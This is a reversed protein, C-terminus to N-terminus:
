PNKEATSDAEETQETKKVVKINRINRKAEEITVMTFPEGSTNCNWEEDDVELPHKLCQYVMGDEDHDIVDFDYEALVAEVDISDTVTASDTTVEASDDSAGEVVKTIYNLSLDPKKAGQDNLLAFAEELTRLELKKDCRPCRGEVNSLVQPHTRCQYITEVKASDIKNKSDGQNGPTVNSSTDQAILAPIYLMLIFLLYLIYKKSRNMREM